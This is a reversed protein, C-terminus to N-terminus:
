YSDTVIWRDSGVLPVSAPVFSVIAVPMGPNAEEAREQAERFAEGTFFISSLALAIVLGIATVAVVLNLVDPGGAM